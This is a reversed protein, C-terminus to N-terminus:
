AMLQDVARDVAWELLLDELAWATIAPAYLHGQQRHCGLALLADAEAGSEVGDASVTLNMTHAMNVLARVVSRDRDGAVSDVHTRDVPTRDVHTRDVRIEDLPLTRLIHWSGSSTADVELCVRAGRERLDALVTSATSLDRQVSTEYVDLTILHLNIDDFYTDVFGDRWANPTCQQPLNVRFRFGPPLGAASLRRIVPRAQEMVAATLREWTSADEAMSLMTGANTITGDHRLWRALIEAGVFAGTTVDFEPQFFPVVDGANISRRLEDEERARVTMETRILPTFIEVRNRGSRKARHLAANAFGLLDAATDGEDPGLAVGISSSVRVPKGALHRGGTEGGHIEIETDLSTAVSRAIEIVTDLQSGDELVVVFEDGGLRGAHTGEPLVDLLRRAIIQLLEDGVAHGLSDNIGKFRDVDLYLVAIRGVRSRGEVVTDLLAMIGQRNLLGTLYDHTAAHALKANADALYGHETLLHRVLAQTLHRQRSWVLGGVLLGTLCGLLVAPFSFAEFKM